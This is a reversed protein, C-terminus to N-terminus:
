GTVLLGHQFLQELGDAGRQAARAADARRRFNEAAALVRQVVFLDAAISDAHDVAQLPGAVLGVQDAAAHAVQQQPDLGLVEVHGGAGRGFLHAVFEAVGPHDAAAELQHMDVEAALDDLDGGETGIVRLALVVLVAVQRRAVLASADQAVVDIAALFVVGLAAVEGDVRQVVIRGALADEVVGVAHVVDAVTQHAQDAIGGLAILFVRHAHQARHTEGGLEAEVDLLM